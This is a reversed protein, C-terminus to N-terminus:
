LTGSIPGRAGSSGTRMFEPLSWDLPTQSGPPSFLDFKFGVGIKEVLSRKIFFYTSLCCSIYTAGLSATSNSESRFDYRASFNLYWESALPVRMHTQLQEVINARRRWTIDYLYRGSLRNWRVLWEDYNAEAARAYEAEIHGFASTELFQAAYFLRRPEPLELFYLAEAAIAQRLDTPADRFSINDIANNLRGGFRWGWGLGPYSEGFHHTGELMLISLQQKPVYDNGVYPNLSFISTPIWNELHSGFVQSTIADRGPNHVQKIRLTYQHLSNHGLRLWSWRWDIYLQHLFDSREAESEDTRAHRLYDAVAGFAMDGSGIFLSYELWARTDYSRERYRADTAANTLRTRLAGEHFQGSLRIRLNEPLAPIDYNIDLSARQEVDDIRLRETVPYFAERWNATSFDVLLDDGDFRYILQEREVFSGTNLGTDYRLPFERDTVSLLKVQAHHFGHDTRFHADYGRYAARADDNAASDLVSYNIEGSVPKTLFRYQHNYQLGSISWWSPSLTMDNQDNIRWYYPVNILLGARGSVTIGPPLFGSTPKASAPFSLYPFYFVPISKIRLVPNRVRVKDDVADVTIRSSRFEWVPDEDPCRSFSARDLTLSLDDLNASASLAAGHYSSDPVTYSPRDAHLTSSDLLIETRETRLRLLPTEIYAGLPALVRREETFYSLQDSALSYAGYQLLANGRLDISDPNRVMEDAAFSVGGLSLEVAKGAEATFEGLEATREELGPLPELRSSCSDSAKAACLPLWVLALAGAVRWSKLGDQSAPVGSRRAALRAGDLRGLRTSRKSYM